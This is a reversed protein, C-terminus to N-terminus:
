NDGDWPHDWATITIEPERPTTQVMSVRDKRAVLCEDCVNITLYVGGSMPDWVGSGYNGSAKFITADNPQHVAVNGIPELQTGCVICPMPKVLASM